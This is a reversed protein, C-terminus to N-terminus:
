PNHRYGPLLTLPSKASGEAGADPSTTMFSTSNLGLGFPASKTSSTLLLSLYMLKFFQFSAETLASVTLLMFIM